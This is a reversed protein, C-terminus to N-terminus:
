SRPPLLEEASRMGMRGLSTVEGCESCRVRGGDSARQGILSHGCALCRAKLIRRLIFRKLVIDRALLVLVIPMGLLFAISAALLLLGASHEASASWLSIAVIAGLVSVLGGMAAAATVIVAYKPGRAAKVFTECEQDTFRDLERFARYVKDSPIRMLRM